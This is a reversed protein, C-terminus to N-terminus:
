GVQYWSEREAIVRNTGFAQVDGYREFLNRDIFDGISAATTQYSAGVGDVMENAAKWTSWGLVLAPLMGVTLLAAILKKRLTWQVTLM